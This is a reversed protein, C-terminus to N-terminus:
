SKIVKEIMVWNVQKINIDWFWKKLGINKAAQGAIHELLQYKLNTSVKKAGLFIHWSEGTFRISNRHNLNQQQTWHEKAVKDMEVNWQKTTTLQHEM